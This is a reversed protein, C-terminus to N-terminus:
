LECELNAKKMAFALADIFLKSDQQTIFKAMDAQEGTTMYEAYESLCYRMADQITANRRYARQLYGRAATAFKDGKAVHTAPPIVKTFDPKVRAPSIESEDLGTIESQEIKTLSGFSRETTGDIWRDWSADLAHIKEIGANISTPATEALLIELDELM